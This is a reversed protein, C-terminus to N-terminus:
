NSVNNIGEQCHVCRARRANIIVEPDNYDEGEKFVLPNHCHKCKKEDMLYQVRAAMWGMQYFYHAAYEDTMPISKIEM